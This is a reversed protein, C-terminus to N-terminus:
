CMRTSAPCAPGSRRGQRGRDLSPTQGPLGSATLIATKMAPNHLRDSPKPRMRKRTALGHEHEAHVLAMNCDSLLRLARNLKKQRAESHRLDATMAEAMEVARARGTVLLWVVLALMVSGLTGALAIINAEDSKLRADFSPLSRIVLTWQHGFLPITKAVHFASDQRRGRDNSDFMLGRGASSGGDYIELDLVASIEGFHEGLIGRMLDNMRFPAYVWGILNARREDATHHPADARFVPLFMLLGAQVDEETEQKLRVKGSIVARDEDRAKSMATRRVPESYMDYGFARQNRWSFPELYLISTYVDRVGAPRLDYEPFGEARIQAIHRDKEPPPVMISFGVGQIGPYKDELKLTRVYEAFEDREVSSSAAFLGAGGELIQEYKAMRTNINAVIENVRFDFEDHLAQRMSDRASKQLAYTLTLGLVLIIAPVLLLRVSAKNSM